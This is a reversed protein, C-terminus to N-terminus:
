RCGSARSAGSSATMVLALPVAASSSFRGDPPPDTDPCPALIPTSRLVPAALVLKAKLSGAPGLPSVGGSASCYEVASPSPGNPGPQDSHKIAIRRRIAGDHLGGSVVAVPVYESTPTPSRTAM